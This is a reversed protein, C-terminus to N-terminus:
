LPPDHQASDILESASMIEVDTIEMDQGGVQASGQRALSYAGTVHDPVQNASDYSNTTGIPMVHDMTVIPDCQYFIHFSGPTIRYGHDVWDVWATSIKLGGAQVTMTQSIDRSTSLMEIMPGDEYDDFKRDDQLRRRGTYAVLPRPAIPRPFRRNSVLNWNRVERHTAFASKSQQSKGNVDPPIEPELQLHTGISRPLIAKRDRSGTLQSNAQLLNALTKKRGPPLAMGLPDEDDNCEDEVGNDDVTGGDGDEGSNSQQEGNLM